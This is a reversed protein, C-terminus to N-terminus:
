HTDRPWRKARGCLHEILNGGNWPRGLLWVRVPETYLARLLAGQDQQRYRAWEARWREFLRTTAENRRWFLVGGQLQVVIPGVV